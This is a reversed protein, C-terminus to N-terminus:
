SLVEGNDKQMDLVLKQYDALLFNALIYRVVQSKKAGTAIAIDDIKAMLSPEVALNIRETKREPRLAVKTSKKM